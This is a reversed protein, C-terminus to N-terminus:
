TGRVFSLRPGRTKQADFAYYRFDGLDNAIFSEMEAAAKQVAEEHGREFLRWALQQADGDFEWIGALRGDILIASHHLSDSKSLTTPRNMWDLVEISEGDLDTLMSQQRRFNLYNDRFPLFVVNRAQDGARELIEPAVFCRNATEDISVSVLPSAELVARAKRVGIGVWFAVEDVTAPGAWQVFRAALERDLDPEPLDRRGEPAGKRYVFRNGDLRKDLPWREVLGDLQLRKLALSFTSPEGAKKGEPGLDRIHAPPLAARLQEATAPSEELRALIDRALRDLERNTVDCRELLKGVRQGFARRGAQLALARDSPTVLMTASRVTIVEVIERRDFILQDIEERRLRPLRAHLAIYTGGGGASYMWGGSRVIAVVGDKGIRDLGQAALWCNRAVQLSIKAEAVAM